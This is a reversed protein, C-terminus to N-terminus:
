ESAAGNRKPELTKQIVDQQTTSSAQPAVPASEAIQKSTKARKKLTGMDIGLEQLTFLAKHCSNFRDPQSVLGAQVFEALWRSITAQSIKTDAEIKEQTTKGDLKSHVLAKEYTNLIDTAVMKLTAVASIRLYARIDNLIREMESM